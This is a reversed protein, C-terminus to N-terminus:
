TVASLPRETSSNIRCSAADISYASAAERAVAAAAARPATCSLPPCFAPARVLLLVGLRQSYGTLAHAQSWLQGWSRHQGGEPAAAADGVQPSSVEMPQAAPHAAAPEAAVELQVQESAQQAASQLPVSLWLAM